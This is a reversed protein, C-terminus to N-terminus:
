RPMVIPLYAILIPLIYDVTSQSNQFDKDNKNKGSSHFCSLLALLLCYTALQKAKEQQYYSYLFSYPVCIHICLCLCRTVLLTSYKRFGSSELMGLIITCLRGKTLRRLGEQCSNPGFIDNSICQQGIM